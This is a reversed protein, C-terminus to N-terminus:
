DVEKGTPTVCVQEPGPSEQGVLQPVSVVLGEEWGWCGCTVYQSLFLTSALGLFKIWKRVQSLWAFKNRVLRSRVLLSPSQCLRKSAKKVAWWTVCDLRSEGACCTVCSRVPRVCERAWCLLDCPRKVTGPLTECNRAIDWLDQCRRVPRACLPRACLFEPTQCVLVRSYNAWDSRLM